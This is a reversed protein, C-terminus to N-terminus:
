PGKLKRELRRALLSLPWSMGFYLLAVVLGLEFYRLTTAALISYTKTLEVMAIVSVISSDKFLAIFDNTVAPLSIRFAQPFIVRRLALLRVM